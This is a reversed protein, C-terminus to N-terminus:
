SKISKALKNYKALQKNADSVSSLLRERVVPSLSYFNQMAIGNTLILLKLDHPLNNLDNEKLM